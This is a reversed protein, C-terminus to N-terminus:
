SPLSGSPGRKMITDGTGHMAADTFMVRTPRRIVLKEIRTGKRALQILALWWELYRRHHRELKVGGRKKPYMLKRVPAIFTMSGPLVFSARTLKCILKELAKHEISMRAVTENKEKTWKEAKEAPLAMTMDHTNVMWGLIKNIGQPVGEAKLKRLAIPPVRTVKNGQIELKPAFIMDFCNLMTNYVHKTEHM